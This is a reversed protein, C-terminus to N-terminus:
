RPSRTTTRSRSTVMPASRTRSAPRARPSRWRAAAWTRAVTPAMPRRTPRRRRSSEKDTTQAKLNTEEASALDVNIGAGEAPITQLFAWVGLHVALSGAIYKLTRSEMAAFMPFAAQKPQAVATVLFTTQGSRVRIRASAPIPVETAGPTSASPRARGSAALEALPTTQGNVTMEGDMGQGFNFVFDDGSPAVM